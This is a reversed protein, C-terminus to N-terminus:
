MRGDRRPPRGRRPSPASELAADLRAALAHELSPRDLTISLQGGRRVSAGEASLLEGALQVADAVSVGLAQSLERVIALEVLTIYSIRRARGRQGSSVVKLTAHHSLLNDLWKTPADLALAALAVSYTRM